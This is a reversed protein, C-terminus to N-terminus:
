RSSLPESPEIQRHEGSTARPLARQPLLLALQTLAGLATAVWVGNVGLLQALGYAAPLQVAFGLTTARVLARGRGAAQLVGGLAVVLAYPVLYLGMLRLFDVSRAAVAPDHTFLATVPGAAGVCIATTVTGLAGALIATDRALSALRAQRGAGLLRATRLAAAQRVAYFAMTAVLLVRYGVGYGAVAATGFSSVLGLQATGVAMRATFDLGFPAGAALIRGATRVTERASVRVRVRVRRRLVLTAALAVARSSVLALAAGSVGLAPVPGAGFILLPDLGLLLVNGLLAMRMPTRTDAAGKFLDDAVRQAFFVALGPFAIAFYGAASVAAPGDLFLRSLPERLLLGPVALAASGLGCLWWAASAVRGAEATDDAGLARSMRLSTGSSVVLVLGLLLNEIGAALTVAAVATGGLRAVWFTSIISAVVGSLLEAYVPGALEILRPLHGRM